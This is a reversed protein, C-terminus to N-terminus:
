RCNKFLHEDGQALSMIAARNPLAQGSRHLLDLAEDALALLNRAAERRNQRRDERMEALASKHQKETQWMAIGVAGVIAIITGIAQVWAAWDSASMTSLVRCFTTFPTGM